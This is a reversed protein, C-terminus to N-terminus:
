LPSLGMSRRKARARCQRRAQRLPRTRRNTWLRRSRHGGVSVTQGFTMGSLAQKARSGYPQGHEPADIEALRIRLPSHDITLVELTDGDIVRVVRGVLETAGSPFAILLVLIAILALRM